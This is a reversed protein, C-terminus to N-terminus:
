GNPSGIAIQLETPADDPERYALLGADSTIRTGHLDVKLRHDFDLRLPENKSDGM